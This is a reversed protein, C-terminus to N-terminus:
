LIKGTCKIKSVHASHLHELSGDLDVIIQGLEDIGKVCGKAVENKYLFNVEKNLLIDYRSWESSLDTLENNNIQSLTKTFIAVVSAALENRSLSWNPKITHLDIWQTEIDVDKKLSMAVNLGVGIILKNGSKGVKREILVGALKKNEACIDNPWKLQINECGLEELFEALAILLWLCLSEHKQEWVPLLWSMSLYLNVTPPSVWQHGYRGRGQTQQEAVCVMVKNSESEHELLYDNTSPISSFAQIDRIDDVGLSDLYKRISKVDLPELVANINPKDIDPADINPPM